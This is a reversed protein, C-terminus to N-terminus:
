AAVRGAALSARRLARAQVWAERADPGTYATQVTDPGWAHPRRSFVTWEGGRRSVVIRVGESLRCDALTERYTDARLVFGQAYIWKIQTANMMSECENSQVFERNTGRFRSGACSVWALPM